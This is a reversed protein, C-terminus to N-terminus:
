YVCCINYKHAGQSLELVAPRARESTFWRATLGGHDCTDIVTRLVSSGRGGRTGPASGARFRTALNQIRSTRQRCTSASSSGPRRRAM